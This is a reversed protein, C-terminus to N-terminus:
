LPGVSKGYQFLNKSDRRPKVSALPPIPPTAPWRPVEVGTEARIRVPAEELLGESRAAIALNIGRRGLELALALGLGQSAGGSVARELAVAGIVIQGPVAFTGGVRHPGVFRREIRDSHDLIM